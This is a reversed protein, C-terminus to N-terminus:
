SVYCNRRNPIPQEKNEDGSSNRATDKFTHPPPEYTPDNPDDADEEEKLEDNIIIKFMELTESRVKHTHDPYVKDSQAVAPSDEQSIDEEELEDQSDEHSPEYTTDNPDDIDEKDNLEENVITMFMELTEPRVKFTYNNHAKQSETSTTANEQLFDEEDLENSPEGQPPVYTADNPDEVDEEENLEENVIIKFMELTEPSVHGDHINFVSGIQDNIKEETNDENNTNRENVLVIENTDDSSELSDVNNNTEDTNIIETADEQTLDEEEEYQSPAYTQDYPDDDDEYEDAGIDDNHIKNYMELTTASVIYERMPPTNNEDEVADERDQLHSHEQERTPVYTPDNQDEEDEESGIEDNHIKNYLEM